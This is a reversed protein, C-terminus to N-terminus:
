KLELSSKINTQAAEFRLLVDKCYPNFTYVDRFLTEDHAVSEVADMLFGFSITDVSTREFGGKKVTQGILHTLFLTEAILRDHEDATLTLVKLGIKGLFSLVEDMDSEPLSSECVVISLNKLSEEQKIYSYPGFMPHTSIYNQVKKDRLVSLTYKKVTAIDCVVTDKGLFPLTKNLTEEFASIPVCLVLFDTGCVEEFTFLDKNDIEKHSSFVKISVNPVHEKALSFIFQGFNGFGIIGISKIQM